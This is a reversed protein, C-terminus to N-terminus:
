QAPPAYTGGNKAPIYASKRHAWVRFCCTQEAPSVIWLPAYMVVFPTTVYAGGPIGLM